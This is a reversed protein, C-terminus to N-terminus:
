LPGGVTLNDILRTGSETTRCAIAVLAAGTVITLPDLTGTDVIEIYEKRILPAGSLASEVAMILRAANREGSDYLGLAAKLGKYITPAAAREAPTLYSNRSSMALGDAERVTHCIKIAVPLNLDAAMRRLVVVQQADKQGFFAIDPAVIDFLKLVVTAVGRFHEPRSTGCLKKDLGEVTVYTCFGKPYIDATEPVFLADCGAARAKETDTELPRPYRRLDEAPGFQAPNVFISMVTVDTRDASKKVLSIHGDHLAGMTPVFGVTRGKSRASQSWKKMGQVTRIIKV